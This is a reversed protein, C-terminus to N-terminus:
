VTQSTLQLLLEGVAMDQDEGRATNQGPGLSGSARAVGLLLLSGTRSGQSGDVVGDKVVEDVGDLNDALTEAGLLVAALQKLNDQVLLLATTNVVTKVGVRLDVSSQCAASDGKQEGLSTSRLVLTSRSPQEISTTSAFILSRKTLLGFLLSLLPPDEHASIM